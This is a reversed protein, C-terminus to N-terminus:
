IKKYIFFLNLNLIPSARVRSCSSSYPSILSNTEVALPMSWFRISFCKGDMSMGDDFGVLIDLGGISVLDFGFLLLSDFFVCFTFSM